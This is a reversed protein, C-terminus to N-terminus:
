RMSEMGLKVMQVLGDKGMKGAEFQVSVDGGKAFDIFNGGGPVLSSQMMEAEDVMIANAIQRPGDDPSIAGSGLGALVMVVHPCIFRRIIILRDDSENIDGIIRDMAGAMTEHAEGHLASHSVNQATVQSAPAIALLAALATSLIRM